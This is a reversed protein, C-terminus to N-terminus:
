RRKKTPVILRYGLLTFRCVSEYAPVRKTYFDPPSYADFYTHSFDLRWGDGLYMKVKLTKIVSLTRKPDFHEDGKQTLFDPKLVYGCGGNARFMGHMLWLSKGYGQMNFAIMQAGHMWGILPKYNSSTIRTGKPYVRLINEQTFRVVDAGYYTAARVLEQESMSLRRVQNVAVKLTDRLAGKPKGAHITILRRYEPAAESKNDFEEDDQDNDSRGDAELGAAEAEEEEEESSNKGGASGKRKIGSSELYEKPPKTSIIIRHKLSEPSPFEVLGASQSQPYYLMGGFTQTVLEAAKAQHERTLHDELTIIVPYPSSVFAYDRIAKLCKVFPVPTTLTRGHLVLIEDKTYGPWLDLEIVRVGRKLARIIPVESCDSSLQNGTLYSNHGTYIYYHSLPATMDHHVQPIIPGNLDDFLLFHFFDELTFGRRNKYKTEHHRKKILDEVIRQADALTCDMLDQHLVLFRRFQEVSMQRQGGSFKAFIEKVDAPPEAETIKFKRNFFNFMRYNYSGLEDKTTDPSKKQKKVKKYSGM